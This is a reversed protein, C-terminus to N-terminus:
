DKPPKGNALNEWLVFAINADVPSINKAEIEETMDADSYKTYVAYGSSFISLCYLPGGESGCEIWADPHDKDADSFLEGIANRMDAASPKRISQGFVRTVRIWDHM